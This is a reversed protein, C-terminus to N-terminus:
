SVILKAAIMTTKTPEIKPVSIGSVTTCIRHTLIMISVKAASAIAERGGLGATIFSGGRGLSSNIMVGAM